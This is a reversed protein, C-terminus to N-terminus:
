NLLNLLFLNKGDKIEVKKLVKIFKKENQEEIGVGKIADVFDIASGDM